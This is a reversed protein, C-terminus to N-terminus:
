SDYSSYTLGNERVHMCVFNSVVGGVSRLQWRVLLGFNLDLCDSPYAHIQGFKCFHTDPGLSLSTFLVYVRDRRPAYAYAHLCVHMHTYVLLTRRQM